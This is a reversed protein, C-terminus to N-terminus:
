QKQMAFSTPDVVPLIANHLYTGRFISFLLGRTTSISVSNLTTSVPEPLDLAKTETNVFQKLNDILYICGAKLKGFQEDRKENFISVSCVVILLDEEPNIRHELSIDFNFITEAALPNIPSNICSEMLEIGKIQFTFSLDQKKKM